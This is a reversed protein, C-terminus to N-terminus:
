PLALTRIDPRTRIGAVHAGVDTRVDGADGSGWVTVARAGRSRGGLYRNRCTPGLLL